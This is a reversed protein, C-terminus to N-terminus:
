SGIKKGLAWIMRECREIGEWLHVISMLSGDLSEREKRLLEIYFSRNEMITLLQGLILWEGRQISQHFIWREQEQAWLCRGRNDNYRDAIEMTNKSARTKATDM